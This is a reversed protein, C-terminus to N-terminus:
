TISFNFSGHERMPVATDQNPHRIRGLLQAAGEMQLARVNFVWPGDALPHDAEIKGRGAALRLTRASVGAFSAAETLTM